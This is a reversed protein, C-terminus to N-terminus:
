GGSLSSRHETLDPGLHRTCNYDLLAHPATAQVTSVATNGLRQAWVAASVTRPLTELLARITLGHSVVVLVGDPPTRLALLERWALRCRHEFDDLAEGGPPAARQHLPDQPLSDYPRGRWDGFDRERLSPWHQVALGPWHAAVAQATQQARLLDSSVVAAVPLRALREGLARAQALGRPSLPTDPPQLVRAANLATEGHRVLLISM